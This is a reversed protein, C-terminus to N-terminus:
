DGGDGEGAPSEAGAVILLAALVMGAIGGMSFVLM